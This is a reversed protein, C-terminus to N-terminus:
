DTHRSYTIISLYSISGTLFKEPGHPAQSDFMLTDGPGMEYTQDGHRYILRGTLMYIVEIGDHRFSVYPEAGEHLSILYPEVVVPGSLLHGLLNYQHGAKTGRREITVGQGSRVFSCDRQEEATAFLQSLSINLAHSVSQLTALSPSIQGNEIKSLMGLSIGAANALETGTLDAKRRKERIQAGLSEELTLERAPTASSGTALDDTQTIATKRQSTRRPTAM